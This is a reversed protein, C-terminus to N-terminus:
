DDDPMLQLLTARLEDLEVPKSIYHTMGAALFRETDGSMAHATLAVIPIDPNWKGHGDERIRRTTELGDMEPMQIDMFVADFSQRALVDLAKLGNEVGVAEQGLRALFHMLAKRNVAEDEVVLIRRKKLEGEAAAIRDKAVAAVEDPSAPKLCLTIHAETGQGVESTVLLSGGMLNVLKKVIALGLGTGKHTRTYAGELQTFAEFISGLKDDPIGVGTDTVSMHLSIFGPQPCRPLPYIELSVGGNQTYKVANGVLNFLVQRLRGADGRFHRPLAPDVSCTLTLGKRAAENTFAGLVPKLVAQLDFPEKEIRLAGAEIKSIDLIDSLIQLLNRSSALATNLYDRQEADLRTGLAMQLMGMVGNLPTRIEHSITALFENKVASAVQAEEKARRLSDERERDATVDEFITYVQFPKDEGERFQPVASVVIWRCADRRPNHVGMLVDRVERGTSLAIMAPQEEPPLASGDERLARWQPSDSARSVLMDLPIGLIETAAFNARIVRGAADQFLAGQDMSEFLYRLQSESERLAEETERRRTVDLMTVVVGAAKRNEDLYPLVRLLYWTGEAQRAEIEEPLGSSVVKRLVPLLDLGQLTHSIHQFPRGVDQPLINLVKTAPPTFKRIRLKDDLFLTGIDTSRMLNDLDANLETLERIKTEYEANVTYLEENVSHLEENTSQLEENSAILEENSAQLEENSTELEEITSQLSERLNQTERELEEIRERSHTSADFAKSKDQVEPSLPREEVFTVLYYGEGSIRDNIPEVRLTVPFHQDPTGMKVSHYTVAEQTKVARQFASALAIRADGEIMSLVDPSVRGVPIFLFNRIQGFAHIIEKRENVLVGTPMYRDLISDYARLLRQDVGIPAANQRARGALVPATSLPFRPGIPLRVDRKKRFIKWHQDLVDFEDALDGLTESPGLFLVGKPKLAFHFLSCIKKQAASQLYILFNRCSILDLKTFPPDRLLDQEAFIVLRRIEASVQFGGDPLNIFYKELYHLPLDNLCTKSYLAQAARALSEKHVDTAFVKLDIPSQAADLAERAIMALSYAEEGTACAPVWIRFEHRPAAQEQLLRSIVRELTKFADYDRFFSTVGILLDKYLNELEDSNGSLVAIYDHLTDLKLMAMRREIRRNITAKKYLAFDLKFAERLLALVSDYADEPPPPALPGAPKGFDLSYRTLIAPMDEPAAVADVEGTEVASGPMGDFHATESSQVIVLGGQARIDRIGRSGDSGSGSLVIGVARNGADAALSRFFVDVPMSPGDPDKDTLLLRGGSIAMEKKPPILYIEDALVEMGNEARNIKMSTHRSLIEDMLSKFDPSLHQIVIFAMGTDDPMNAFLTELPDLGGASAGIGVYFTPKRPATNTM